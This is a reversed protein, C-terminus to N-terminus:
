EVTEGVCYARWAADTEAMFRTTAEPDVPDDNFRDVGLLDEIPRSFRERDSSERSGTPDSSSVITAEM